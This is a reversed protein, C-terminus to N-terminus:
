EILLIDGRELVFNDISDHGDRVHAYSTEFRKKSGDAAERIVIVRSATDGRLGGALALGQLLSTRAELKYSGPKQVQGTVYVVYSNTQVLSLTVRPAPVLPRLKLILSDRLQSETLGKARVIGILPLAIMGTSTVKFTGNVEKKNETAINVVDGTDILYEGQESYTKGKPALHIDLTTPASLARSEHRCGLSCTFLLIALLYRM